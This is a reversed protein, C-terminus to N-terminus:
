SNTSDNKNQVENYYQMVNDYLSAITKRLGNREEDTMGKVWSPDTPLKNINFDERYQLCIEDITEERSKM